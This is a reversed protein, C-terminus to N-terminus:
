QKDEAEKLLEKGLNESEEDKGMNKVWHSVMAYPNLSDEPIIQEDDLTNLNVVQTPVLEAHESPLKDFIKKDMPYMVKVFDCPRIDSTDQDKDNIKIFKPANTEIQKIIPAKNEELTVHLFGRRCGVDGWNHQQTAGIYWANKALQQHKHYHGFFCADFKDLPIENISLDNDGILVYDAGVMAGQIGVHSILVDIKDSYEPLGEFADLYDQKFDSYPVFHFRIGFDGYEDKDLVHYIFKPKDIITINPVKTLADLAHIKGLRDAYDHNGPIMFLRVGPMAIAKIAKYTATLVDMPVNERVHFLDGAFIVTKIQNDKVYQAIEYLVDCSDLLRSNYIGPLIHHELRSSKYSHNHAHHDSFLLVDHKM